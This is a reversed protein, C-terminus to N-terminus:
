RFSVKVTQPLTRGEIQVEIFYEAAASSSLDFVAKGLSDTQSQIPEVTLNKNQGMFVTKEPVGVGQSDLAFITIRIKEEGNAQALLPSAFVYSNELSLIGAQAARGALKTQQNVLYVTLALILLLFLFALIVLIRKM